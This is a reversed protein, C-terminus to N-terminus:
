RREDFVTTRDAVPEGAEDEVLRGGLADSRQAVRRRLPRADVDEGDNGFVPQQRRGHEAVDGVARDAFTSCKSRRRAGAARGARQDRGDARVGALAVEGAVIGLRDDDAAVLGVELEGGQVGAGGAEDKRAAQRKERVDEVAGLLVLDRKQAGAQVRYGVTFPM